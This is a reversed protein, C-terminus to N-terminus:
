APCPGRIAVAAAATCRARLATHASRAAPTNCNGIRLQSTPSSHSYQFPFCSRPLKGARLSHPARANFAKTSINAKEYKTALNEQYKIRRQTVKKCSLKGTLLRTRPCVSCPAPIVECHVICPPGSHRSIM